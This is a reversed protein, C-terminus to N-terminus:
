SMRSVKFFWRWEWDKCSRTTLGRQDWSKSDMDKLLVRGKPVPQACHSVGLQLSIWKQSPTVFVRYRRDGACEKSERTSAWQWATNQEASSGMCGSVSPLGWGVLFLPVRDWLGCLVAGQWCTCPATWVCTRGWRLMWILAYGQEADEHCGWSLDPPLPDLNRGWPFESLTIIVTTKLWQTWPYNTVCCYIVFVSEM